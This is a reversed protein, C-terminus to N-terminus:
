PETGASTTKYKKTRQDSIVGAWNMGFGFDYAHGEGDRYVKMDFPLDESQTEVTSMDAPLRFPLLASPQHNGSLVEFIAQHQAEFDVLIADAAPELEAMVAPNALNISLVVPKNGMKKRTDLLVELDKVNATEVSKGYFSRDASSEFPSGGALSKQRAMTATYPQYQLSIPLYGNGGKEKDKKDYGVGSKPSEAFVLAFDAMAPDDTIQFYKEVIEKKAPTVWKAPTPPGFFGRSEPVYRQPIYVKKGKALPLTKNKNKLLVLSKLQAEYGAKMFEPNGVTTKSLAVDLYPNEFLGVRFINKLLRVASQEFRARMKQEGHEKVGMQYAEIVPGAVNNGGFQDCGAMLVKYHREAESLHEVGWPKGRFEDVTTVIGTVGWDTCVVGDYGYKTRLLDQIIYSSYANAINEGQHGQGYSITYYPMVASASGTGDNLKFAGERFVHIHDKLNNGPYVAYAGYGYHGDRGGEEPGGGPWHKVMANVSEMGWGKGRTSQFGDVYARALDAALQPSEGFTGRFRNWRPETGLDIQPSLATAIGLARYERSAIDGFKKVLAPDFSAALGLSGPWMSINGGAGANYEADSITGHRPDSSNNAPIGLGLGEVFAQANNNWEAAIQPSQVRTLLVHRLHDKEFFEKQQDTLASAVHVKPDFAKGEYTSGGRMGGGPIAQHGSYLMLGAIQEVSMRSALDKARLDATLRWDEYPDLKGNRNLDKFALRDVTIIKVGSAPSYGLTAGGKNHVLTFPGNQQQSYRPAAYRFSVLAFGAFLIYTFFKKM